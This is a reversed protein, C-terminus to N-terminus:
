KSERKKTGKKRATKLLSPDKEVQLRYYKRRPDNFWLPKWGMQCCQWAMDEPNIDVRGRNAFQTTIVINLVTYDGWVKGSNDLRDPSMSLSYGTTGNTEPLLPVGSWYCKGDQRVFIEELDETTINSNEHRIEEYMTEIDKKINEDLTGDAWGKARPGASSYEASFKVTSLLKKFPNSRLAKGKVTVGELNALFKSQKKEDLFKAASHLEIGKFM